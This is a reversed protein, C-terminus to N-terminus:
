PTERILLIILVLEVLKTFLGVPSFQGTPQLQMIFYLIITLATYGAMAWRVWNRPVPLFDFRVFYLALLGLYGLGNFIFLVDPFSFGIGLHVLATILVLVIIIWQQTNPKEYLRM